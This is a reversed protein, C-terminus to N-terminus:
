AAPSFTRSLRARRMRETEDILVFLYRYMLALVTLLLSPCRIARLVALVKAFPTTNSLLIMTFLCLTSRLLFVCFTRWGDPELLMLLGIGLVFPELFLLRRLLFRPPIRSIAAILLLFCGAAIFLIDRHIPMLAITIVLALAVALKLAAPLRHVPSDLRSFRDLFDPRM